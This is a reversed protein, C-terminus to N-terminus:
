PPGEDSPGLTEVVDYTTPGKHLSKPSFSVRNKAAAGKGHGFSAYNIRGPDTSHYDEATQLTRRVSFPGASGSLM